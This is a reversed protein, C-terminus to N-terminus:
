LRNGWRNQISLQLISCIWQSVHSKVDGVLGYLTCYIPWDVANLSPPKWEAPGWEFSWCHVNHRNLFVSFSELSQSVSDTFSIQIKPTKKYIQCISILNQKEKYFFFVNHRNTEIIYKNILMYLSSALDSGLHDSSICTSVGLALHPSCIQGWTFCTLM